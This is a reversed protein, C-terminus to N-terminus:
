AYVVDTRMIYKKGKLVSLAEHQWCDMGHRHLLMRGASPQVRATEGGGHDAYFVTEGGGCESLYFLVTYMTRRGISDLASGDYHKGFRLGEDYRYFRLNDNFGVASGGNADKPLVAAVARGIGSDWIRDAIDRSTISARFNDRYAEGRNPRGSKPRTSVMGLGLEAFRIWSSCEAPSLVSDALLLHEDVRQWRGTAIKKISRASIERYPLLPSEASRQSNNRRTGGAAKPKQKSAKTKSKAM